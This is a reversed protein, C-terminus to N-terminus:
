AAGAARCRRLCPVRRCSSARRGPRRRSASLRNRLSPLSTDHRLLENANPRRHMGDPPTARQDCIGSIRGGRAKGAAWAIRDRHMRDSVTGLRYLKKPPPRRAARPAVVFKPSVVSALFLRQVPDEHVIRGPEEGEDWLLRPLRLAPATSQTAFRSLRMQSHGM